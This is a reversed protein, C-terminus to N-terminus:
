SSSVDTFHVSLLDNFNWEHEYTTQTQPYETWLVLSGSVVLKREVVSQPWIRMMNSLQVADAANRLVLQVVLTTSIMGAYNVIRFRVCVRM